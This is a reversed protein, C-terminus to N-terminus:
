QVTGSHHTPKNWRAPDENETEVELLGEMTQILGAKISDREAPNVGSLFKATLDALVFGVVVPNVGVLKSGLEESLRHTEVYADEKDKTDQVIEDGTWELKKM